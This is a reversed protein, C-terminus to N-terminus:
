QLALVFVIVAVSPQLPTKMQPEAVLTTFSLIFEFDFVTDHTFEGAGGDGPGGLPPSEGCTQARGRLSPLLAAM